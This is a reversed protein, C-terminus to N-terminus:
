KTLILKDQKTIRLRYEQDGHRIIIERHGGFLARSEVVAAAASDAARIVPEMRQNNITRGPMKMCCLGGKGKSLSRGQNESM